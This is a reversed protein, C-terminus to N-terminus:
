HHHDHHVHIVRKPQMVKGKPANIEDSVHITQTQLLAEFNNSGAENTGGKHGNSFGNIFNKTLTSLKKEVLQKQVSNIIAIFKNFELQNCDNCGFALSYSQPIISEVITELDLNIHESTAM